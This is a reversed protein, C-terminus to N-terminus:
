IGKFVSIIVKTVYVCVSVEGNYIDDDDDDDDSFDDGDDVFSQNWCSCTSVILLDPRLIM